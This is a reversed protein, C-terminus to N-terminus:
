LIGNTKEGWQHARQGFITEAMKCCNRGSEKAAYLAVDADKLLNEWDNDGPEGIACGFSATVELEFNQSLRIPTDAIACRLKDAMSLFGGTGEGAEILFLILFEEGGYRAIFDTKRCAVQMRASIERLVDDGVAHGYTDNIKKFHDLDFLILGFRCGTDWVHLNLNDIVQELGRRNLLGTLPDTQAMAHLKANLEESEKTMQSRRRESERLTEIATFLDQTINDESRPVVAKEVEANKDEGSALAIIQKQATQMSLILHRISTIMLFLPVLLIAFGISGALIIRNQATDRHEIATDISLKTFRESLLELSKFNPSVIDYFQEISLDIKGLQSQNIIEDFFDLTQDFYHQNISTLTLQTFPDNTFSILHRNLMRGVQEVTGRQRELERIQDITLPEGEMLSPIVSLGMREAYDRLTSMQRPIIIATAMSPNNRITVSSINAIITDISNVAKFMRSVSEHVQEQTRQKQSTDIIKDVSERAMQIAMRQTDLGSLAQLLPDEDTELLAALANLSDRVTERHLQLQRVAMEGAEGTETMAMNSLRRGVALRNEVWLAAHFVQMLEVSRRNLRYEEWAPRLILGVLVLMGLLLPLVDRLVRSRFTAHPKM